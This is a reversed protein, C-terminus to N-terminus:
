CMSPRRYPTGNSFLKYRVDRVQAAALRVEWLGAVMVRQLRAILLCLVPNLAMAAAALQQQDAGDAAELQTVLQQPLPKPAWAYEGTGFNANEGLWWAASRCIFCMVNCDISWETCLLAAMCLFNASECGGPQPGTCVFYVACCCYMCQQANLLCCINLQGFNASEGLWWAASRHFHLACLLAAVWANNLMSCVVSTWLQRQGRAVLGCVQPIFYVRCLLWGHM